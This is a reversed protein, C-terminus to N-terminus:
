HYTLQANLWQTDFELFEATWNLPEDIFKSGLTICCDLFPTDVGVLRALVQLPFAGFPIEESLYRHHPNRISANDLAKIQHIHEYLSPGTTGYATKFYDYMDSLNPFGLAKAIALRDRDFDGILDATRPGIDRYINYNEGLEWRTLSAIILPVHFIDNCKELNIELSSSAPRLSEFSNQYTTVIRETMESNQAAVQFQNKFKNIAVQDDANGRSAFPSNNVDGVAPLQTELIGFKRQLVKCFVRGSFRSSCILLINKKSNIYEGLINAYSELDQGRCCIIINKPLQGDNAAAIEEIHNSCTAIPYNGPSFVGTSRVIKTKSISSYRRSFLDVRYGQSSLHVATALGADGGGVILYSDQSM